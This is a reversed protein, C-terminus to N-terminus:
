VEVPVFSFTTVDFLGMDTLKLEPIVALSMFCLTMVPEVGGSIGLRDHAASHILKLQESVWEGGQDSMIGGVVMPMASVVEQKDALCIGGGQAILREVAFAMDADDTGVVIINHSDHAISLAVAGTKIGYGRLLACAVNGTGRHREVVAIKVIDQDPQRVFEGDEDLRVVAQGKGTVVGGPLIDIVRVQESKLRLRLKDRTFDRVHFRGRVLDIPNRTVEKLYQGDKALEEGKVWVRKVGFDSLNDVLVLDARLGPAIGGRDHLRFCQAANLSAMRVATLPDIGEEVLIRLHNDLHGVSLLTKPQCDDSCLLCRGSNTPTVGRVLDRLNHCASGQRLMVYMGRSVRDVLEEPTTCEHDTSIGATAYANLANGALSPSHGDILKGARRAELLKDLVGDDAHVVGPYNMFEGLGLIREDKLPERMMGADIVAGANEFPTAPVCSPLMYLISLKSCRAAELMYRMGDLGCVNVIEHPDAIITTTGRPILLRGIEEPTVYSSEIHIHADILGPLLYGGRADVIEKGSYEGVGAIYGACIAVDRGEIVRTNYVDAVKCNKIVVDAEERGAAVDILRKLASKEM